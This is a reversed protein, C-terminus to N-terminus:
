DALRQLKRRYAIREADNRALALAKAYLQRAAGPHGARREVEARAAWYFHYGSLQDDTGIALLADRGADLGRLETIALARGLAVVPGLASAHLQDYLAVIRQWNTEALSPALAHEAAIGAELHWRTLEDGSASAGLHLVGREILPRDWRARDQEALPRLVGDEDLRTPLRAAHFCFIAVLAHVDAEPPAGSQLLLEGLRIAEACLAPHLPNDPDSGHYGENFLLYLGQMVSPRRARVAAPDRVDTLNGLDRLRARGRHLRRDVTQIDVLFARAIESPSLGCLFRLILTVHTERSLHDDCISFMMALQNAADEGDTLFSDITEPEPIRGVLRSERKTQRIRDLARRKAVQLIWASPDRPLEFRWAHMATTLADHVVDEALSLHSPGLLRTLAAVLRVSERRFLDNVLTAARRNDPTNV